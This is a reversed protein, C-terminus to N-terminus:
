PATAVEALTAILDDGRAAFNDIYRRLLEVFVAREQSTWDKVVTEFLGDVAARLKGLRQVGAATLVVHIARGDQPDAERRALGTRVLLAVQRSVTSPDAHLIAALEGSRQPGHKRMAFMLQIPLSEEHGGQFLQQKTRVLQRMLTMMVGPIDEPEPVGSTSSTAADAIRPGTMKNGESVLQATCTDSTRGTTADSLLTINTM